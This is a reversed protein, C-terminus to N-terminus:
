KKHEMKFTVKTKCRHCIHGQKKKGWYRGCKCAIPMNPHRPKAM